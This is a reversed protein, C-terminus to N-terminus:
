KSRNVSKMLEAKNLIAAAFDPSLKIAENYDKLANDISGNEHYLVARNFYAKASKPRLQINREYDQLAKNLNGM